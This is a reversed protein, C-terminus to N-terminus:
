GKRTYRFDIKMAPIEQFTVYTLIFNVQYVNTLYSSDSRRPGTGKLM